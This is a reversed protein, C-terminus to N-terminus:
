VESACGKLQSIEPLVYRTIEFLISDVNWEIRKRSM